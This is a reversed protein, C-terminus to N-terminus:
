ADKNRWHILLAIGAAAIFCLGLVAIELAVTLELVRCM